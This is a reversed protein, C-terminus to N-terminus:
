CDFPFQHGFQKGFNQRLIGFAKFKLKLAIKNNRMYRWVDTISKGIKIKQM